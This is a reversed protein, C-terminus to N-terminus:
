GNDCKKIHTVTSNKNNPLNNIQESFVEFEHLPVHKMPDFDLYGHDKTSDDSSHQTNNPKKSLMM